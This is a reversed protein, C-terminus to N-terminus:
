HSCYCWLRSFARERRTVVLFSMRTFLRSDRTEVQRAVVERALAPIVRAREERRQELRRRWTRQTWSCRSSSRWLLCRNASEQRAMTHRQTGSAAANDRRPGQASDQQARQLSACTRSSRKMDRQYWNPQYQSGARSSPRSHPNTTTATVWRNVPSRWWSVM